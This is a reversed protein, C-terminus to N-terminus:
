SAGEGNNGLVQALKRTLTELKFPKQLYEVRPETQGQLMLANETYGSMFVVRLRPLIKLIQNAMERGNMGPMVVDTLLLDIQGAHQQCVDIGEKPDACALVCYGAQELVECMVRRIMREDEVLLITQKGSGEGNRNRTVEPTEIVSVDAGQMSEEGQFQQRAYRIALSSGLVQFMYQQGSGSAKMNM